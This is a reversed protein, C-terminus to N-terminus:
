FLRFIYGTQLTSALKLTETPYRRETILMEAGKRHMNTSNYDWQYIREVIRGRLFASVKVRQGDEGSAPLVKTTIRVM